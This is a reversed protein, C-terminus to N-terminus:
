LDDGINLSMQHPLGPGEQPRLYFRSHGYSNQRRTLEALTERLRTGLHATSGYHTARSESRNRYYFIGILLLMAQLETPSWTKISNISFSLVHNEWTDEKSRWVHVSTCGWEWGICCLHMSCMCVGCVCMNVCMCVQM